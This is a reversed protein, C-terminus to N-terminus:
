KKGRAGKPRRRQIESALMRVSALLERKDKEPLEEFGKFLVGVESDFAEADDLAKGRAVAFLEDESKGLGAALAQLKIATPSVIYRNEIQSIYGRSISFGKAKARRVVDELSIELERERVRRIYDALDGQVAM